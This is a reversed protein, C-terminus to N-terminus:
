SQINLNDPTQKMDEIFPTLLIFNTEGLLAYYCVDPISASLLYLCPNDQAIYGICLWDPIYSVRTKNM